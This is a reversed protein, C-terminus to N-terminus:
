AAPNAAAWDVIASTGVVTAGDDLLLVPVDEQGTM